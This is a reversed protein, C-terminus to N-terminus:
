AAHQGGRRWEMPATLMAKVMALLPYPDVPQHMTKLISPGEWCDLFEDRTELNGSFLILTPVEPLALQWEPWTLLEPEKGLNVGLVILDPKDGALLLPIEEWSQAMVVRHNIGELICQLMMRYHADPEFILLKAM